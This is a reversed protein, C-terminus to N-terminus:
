KHHQSCKFVLLSPKNKIKIVRKNQGYGVVRFLYNETSDPGEGDHNEKARQVLLKIEEREKPHLDNSMTINRFREIQQQKLNRVNSMIHQKLQYDKFGVLLPRNSGETWRGLRFMKEIDGGELMVNFVGDLLDRVYTTDNDKRESVNEVKKEPVRYIILNKKRKEADLEAESKKSIEEKVMEKVLEEDTPGNWKATAMDIELSHAKQELTLLRPEAEYDWKSLREELHCIRSELKVMDAKDCKDVLKSEFVEYKQMLREVLSILNDLKDNQPVSSFSRMDMVAQECSDCFWRLALNPDTLLKDYLDSGINLCEACKWSDTSMCRDCQLAKVEDSIVTGCKCCSPATISHQTKCLTPKSTSAPSPAVPQKSAGGGRKTTTGNKASVNQLKGRVM